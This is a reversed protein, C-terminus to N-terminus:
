SIVNEREEVRASGACWYYGILIAIVFFLVGLFVAVATIIRIFREIEIHIPTELRGGDLADAAPPRAAPLGM